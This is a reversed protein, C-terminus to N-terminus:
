PIILVQGIVIEYTQCRYRLLEAVSLKLYAALGRQRMGRANFRAAIVADINAVAIALGVLVHARDRAKNLRFATRRTVVEERFDIFAAIIAKLDLLEPRGSRLALMNCGFSGQLPSFRFLQNLVVDPEAERRLEIVVRLGQRDSEDRLDSIGEITKARVLEAIRELMRAKNVQYPVETVVIAKRDKRIEETHVKSRLTLSGRGKHYAALIGARGLIMAGTPFDPGRVFARLDSVTADPNEILHVCADVVERLNHPPINTAMGVAIGSTGNLLLNAVEYWHGVPHLCQSPLNDRYDRTEDPDHM